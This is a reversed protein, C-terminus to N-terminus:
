RCKIRLEPSNCDFYQFGGIMSSFAAYDNEWASPDNTTLVTLVVVDVRQIFALAEKAQRRDRAGTMVRVPVIAGDKTRLSAPVEVRLEPNGARARSVVRDIEAALDCPKRCVENVYVISKSSHFSGGTPFLVLRAGIPRAEDFSFDWGGPVAFTYSYKNPELVLPPAKQAVVRGFALASVFGVLVIALHKMLGCRGRDAGSPPM